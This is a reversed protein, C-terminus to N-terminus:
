SSCRKWYDEIAERAHPLGTKTIWQDHEDWLEELAGLISNGM